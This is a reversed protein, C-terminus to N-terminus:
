CDPDELFRDFDCRGDSPDSNIRGPTADDVESMIWITFATGGVLGIIGLILGVRARTALSDQNAKKANGMGVVGLVLGVLAILPGLFPIWFLCIGVIGLM